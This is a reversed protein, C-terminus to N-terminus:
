YRHRQEVLRVLAALATRQALLVGCAGLHDLLARQLEEVGTPVADAGDLHVTGIDVSWRGRRVGEARLTIKRGVADFVRYVGDAVDVGELDLMAAEVTPYLSVDLGDIVIVPPQLDHKTM